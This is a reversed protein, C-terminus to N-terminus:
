PHQLLLNISIIIYYLRLTNFIWVQLAYGHVHALQSYKSTINIHCDYILLAHHLIIHFFIMAIISVVKATAFLFGSFFEPKYPIQVRSRKTVPTTSKGIRSPHHHLQSYRVIMYSSHHDEKVYNKM